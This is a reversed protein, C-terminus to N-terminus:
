PMWIRLIHHYVNNKKEEAYEIHTTRESVQISKDSMSMRFAM